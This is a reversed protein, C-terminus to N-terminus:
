EFVIKIVICAFRAAIGYMNFAAKKNDGTFHFEIASKVVAAEFIQGRNCADTGSIQIDWVAKDTGQQEARNGLTSLFNNSEQPPAPQPGQLGNIQAWLKSVTTELAQDYNHLVNHSDIM